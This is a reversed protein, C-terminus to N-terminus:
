INEYLRQLQELIEPEEKLAVLPSLDEVIMERNLSNKQRVLIGRVDVWDQPRNAFAKLVVLDEASCTRISCDPLFEFDTAREMIQAEFPLAGLAIDIGIGSSSKALLVRYQLAFERADERRPLFKALIKDIYAAEGGFGTLITLDIDRTLRNEGWRQM